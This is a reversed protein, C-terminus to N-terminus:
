ILIESRPPVPHNKTRLYNLTPEIFASGEFGGVETIYKLIKNFIKRSSSIKNTQITFVRHMEGSLAKDVFDAYYLGIKLLDQELRPDVKSATFHIDSVKFHNNQVPKPDLFPLEIKFSKSNQYDRWHIKTKPLRTELEMYGSFNKNGFLISDVIYKEFDQIGLIRDEPDYKKSAVHKTPILPSTVNHIEFGQSIIYDIQITSWDGVGVIHLDTSFASPKTELNKHHKNHSIIDLHYM